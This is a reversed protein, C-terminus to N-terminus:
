TKNLELVEVEAKMAQQWCPIISAEAYDHPETETSLSLLFHRYSPSLRSFNVVSSLPHSCRSSIQSSLNSSFNCCYDALKPLPHLVRKSHRPQPSPSPTLSQPSPNIPVAPSPHPSSTYLDTYKPHIFPTLSHTPYMVNPRPTYASTNCTTNPDIVQHHSIPEHSHIPTEIPRSFPNINPQTQKQFPFQMEDFLINKSIFIEKNDLDLIIYGKIGIQFGLFVGRHSHPDFKSRHTISSSAYCLCGFVKLM